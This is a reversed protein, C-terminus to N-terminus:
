GRAGMCEVQGAKTVLWGARRIFAQLQARRQTLVTDIRLCLRRELVVLCWEADIGRPGDNNAAYVIADVDGM